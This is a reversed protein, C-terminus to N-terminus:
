LRSSRVGGAGTIQFEAGSVPLGSQDDYIQCSLIAAQGTSSFVILAIGVVLWLLFLPSVGFLIKRNVMTNEVGTPGLSLTEFDVFLRDLIM